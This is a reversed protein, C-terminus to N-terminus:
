QSRAPLQLESFDRARCEAIAEEPRNAAILVGALNNRNEAADPKLRLATHMHEIAEDSNGLDSLALALNTHAMWCDPNLDLTSRYLVISSAYTGAQCWAFM